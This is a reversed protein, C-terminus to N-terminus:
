CKLVFNEQSVFGVMALLYSGISSNYEKSFKCGISQAMPFYVIMYRKPHIMMTRRARVPITLVIDNGFGVM